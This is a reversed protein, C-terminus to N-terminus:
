TRKTERGWIPLLLTVALLMIGGFLVPYIGQNGFSVALLFASIDFILFFTIYLFFREMNVQVKKAPYEEGCAYPVLKDLTAKPKPAILLGTLYLLISFLLSISFSLLLSSM